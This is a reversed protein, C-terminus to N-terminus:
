SVKPISIFEASVRYSEDFRDETVWIVRAFGDYSFDELAFKLKLITGLPIFEGSFFSIGGKSINRTVSARPRPLNAIEYAIKAAQPVRIFKRREIM